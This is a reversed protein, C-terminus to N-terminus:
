TGGGIKFQVVKVVPASEKAKEHVLKACIIDLIAVGTCDFITIEEDNERGKKVRAVVEALTGYIDEVKIVGESLPVNIEGSHAAQEVNDVVIKAKKLLDSDLEQKGKADAGIANIHTGPRIYQEKVVPERSPTTTVVIDAQTAEEIGEVPRIDLDLSAGMENAYKVCADRQIDFVTVKEIGPLVGKIAILQTRAQVGAGIFGIVSSNRRALYKVAVGGAAGTRVNTIHTGDMVAVPCGTNPDCLIITAMVSPLGCRRNNPYVSVWKLGAVGDVYAPMARFDGEHQALDLYLKPPMVTLGQAELVFAREVAKLAEDMSLLREVESGTLVLVQGTAFREKAGQLSQPRERGDGSIHKGKEM